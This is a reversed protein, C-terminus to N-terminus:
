RLRLTNPWLRDGSVVQSEVVSLNINARAFEDAFGQGRTGSWSPDFGLMKGAVQIDYYYDEGLQRRKLLTGKFNGLNCGPFKMEFNRRLNGHLSVNYSPAKVANKVIYSFKPVVKKAFSTDGAQKSHHLSMALIEAIYSAMRLHQCDTPTRYQTTPTEKSELTSIFDSIGTLFDPHKHTDIMIWPWYDEALAVFELIALAIPPKLAQVNAVSDLAVTLLPKARSSESRLSKGNTKLSKRPTTGTLLYTAFWPQRNSIVASLLNWIDINLAENDLPKDLNALVDLFDRATKPGLHGLLSPPEADYTAASRVLAEFLSVLPAKYTQHVVYLRVLIAISKFLQQELYSRPHKLLSGARILSTCLKLSARVQFTWMETVRIAVTSEPTTIGDAFVRLLPQVSLENSSTSLFVDLLYQALSALIGAPKKSIDPNDDISYCYLLIKDFLAPIKTHVELKEELKVFRWNVSSEFVDIMARGFSLLVKSMVRDPIGTGLQNSASFRAVAKITGKRPVAQAVVDEVLADFVRISALLLDYRGSVIETSAVLATLMGVKGDMELLGSRGLLPWVRGPMVPILAYVFHMCQVALDLSGEMGSQLHQRQLEEEFIDFIISIVDGNRNLGDSAEELIKQAADSGIYAGNSAEGAKISTILLTSLLGVIEIITDRAVEDSPVNGISNSSALFIELLRGLYKLGSYQYTWIAVVPKSESLVRGNTGEPIQFSGVESPPSAYQQGRKALMRSINNANNSFVDLNSTLAVYNANEDEHILRYADFDPPLIQTFTEIDNLYASVVPLGDDNLIRTSALAKCLKLFPLSEYPFRTLATKFLKDMLLEDQLFIATPDTMKIATTGTEIERHRESGSLVALVALVVEPLYEVWELSARILDMLAVRMRLGTESTHDTCFTPCFDTALSIIVEYVHSENVASKALYTIPDEDLSTDMIKELIEEAMTIPLSGESSTSTRRRPQRRFGEETTPLNGGDTESLEKTVFDDAARQSQRLERSEKAALAIERLTQLIIGWAFVAPCATIFSASAAGLLMENIENIATLDMIYPAAASEEGMLAPVEEPELLYNIALPLKFLTLSVLAVMSQFPLSLTKGSDFAKLSLTLSLSLM